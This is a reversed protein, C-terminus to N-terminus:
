FRCGTGVVASAAMRKAVGYMSAFVYANIGPAVSATLVASRFAETSLDGAGGLTRMAPHLGALGRLNLITRVGEPRYRYLVVAWFWIASRAPGRAGDFGDPLSWPCRFTAAISSLDGAFSSWPTLSCQEKGVKVPIHRLPTGQACWNWQPSALRTASLHTFRSSRRLEEAIIRVMLANWYNAPGSTFYKRSLVLNRRVWPGFLSLAGGFAWCCHGVLQLFSFLPIDFNQQLDLTSIARFLLCPLSFNQAFGGM